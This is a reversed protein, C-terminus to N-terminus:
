GSGKRVETVPSVPQSLPCGPSVVLGRSMGPQCSLERALRRQCSYERALRCQCAPVQPLWLQCLHVGLPRASLSVPSVPQSLPCGFSVSICPLIKKLGGAKTM